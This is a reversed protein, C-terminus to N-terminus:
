ILSFASARHKGTSSPLWSQNQLLMCWTSPLEVQLGCGQSNVFSPRIFASSEESNSDTLFRAPRVAAKLACGYVDMWRGILVHALYGLRKVSLARDDDVKQADVDQILGLLLAAVSPCHWDTVQWWTAEADNSAPLKDNPVASAVLALARDTQPHTSTTANDDTATYAHAHTVVPANCCDCTTDDKVGDALPTSESPGPKSHATQSIWITLDVATPGLQKDAPITGEASGQVRLKMNGSPPWIYPM